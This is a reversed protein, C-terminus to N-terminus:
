ISVPSHVRTNRNTRSQLSDRPISVLGVTDPTPRGPPADIEM